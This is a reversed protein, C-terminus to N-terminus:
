KSAWVDLAVQWEKPAVPKVILMARIEYHKFLKNAAERFTKEANTSPEDTAFVYLHIMGGGPKLIESAVDLFALSSAPLNMIIRDAAGALRKAAKRADDCIPIVEGRISNMKINENLLKIADPNLDISYVKAKARKAIMLSFPGVGAFMDVVTEGDSVSSAIRHRESGLRPSFYVKSLDVKFKMGYEKHITDFKETGAMVELRPVRFNGNVKGTKLLVTKISPHLDMLAEGIEKKHPALEASLSELVVIDGVMDYSRPLQALLYPPLRGDLVEVLDKPRAFTAPLDMSVVRIRGVNKLATLEDSRPKRSIPILLTDGTTKIKRSNDFLGLRLLTRRVSEGMVREAKICLNKPM